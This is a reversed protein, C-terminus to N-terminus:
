TQQLISICHGRQDSKLELKLIQLLATQWNWWHVKSLHLGHSYLLRNCNKKYAKTSNKCTFIKLVQALIV